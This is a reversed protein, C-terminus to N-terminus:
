RGPRKGTTTNLTMKRDVLKTVANAVAANLTAAQEATIKGDAAAKNIKTNTAATIANILGQRNKGPISDAIEGLSKGSRLAKVAGEDLTLAGRTELRGYIWRKRATVPNAEPLLM